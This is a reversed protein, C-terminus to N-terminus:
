KFDYDNYGHTYRDPYEVYDSYSIIKLSGGQNASYIIGRKDQLICWNQPQLDELKPNYYQFFNLGVNKNSEIVPISPEGALNQGGFFFLIFLFLGKIRSYM